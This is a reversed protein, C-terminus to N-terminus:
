GGNNNGAIAQRLRDLMSTGHSSSIVNSITSSNGYDEAEQEAIADYSTNVYDMAPDGFVTYWGGGDGETIFPSFEWDNSEGSGYHDSIENAPDHWDWPTWAGNFPGWGQPAEVLDIPHTDWPLSEYRVHRLVPVAMMAHGTSRRRRAM